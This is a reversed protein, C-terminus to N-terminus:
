VNAQRRVQTTRKGANLQDPMTPMTLTLVLHVGDPSFKVRGHQIAALRMAVHLGINRLTGVPMEGLPKDIIDGLAKKLPQDTPIDSLTALAEMRSAASHVIIRTRVTQMVTYVQVRLSEPPSLEIAASFLGRIMLKTRSDNAYVNPMGDAITMEKIHERCVFHDAQSEIYGGLNLMGADLQTTSPKRMVLLAFLIFGDLRWHVHRSLRHLEEIDAIQSSGLREHRSIKPSLLMASYGVVGTLLQRLDHSNEALEKFTMDFLSVEHFQMANKKVIDFYQRHDAGFRGSEDHLMKDSLTIITDITTKLQASM